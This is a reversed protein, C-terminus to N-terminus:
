HRSLTYFFSFNNKENIKQIYRKGNVWVQQFTRVNNKVSMHLVTHKLLKASPGIDVIQSVTGEIQIDNVVPSFGM